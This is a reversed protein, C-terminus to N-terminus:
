NFRVYEFNVPQKNVGQHPAAIWNAFKGPEVVRGMLSQVYARDQEDPLWEGHQHTWDSESLVAGDPSVHHGAFSGIRRNFGKHPLKFRFPVGYKEPIRNWRDIGLQVDAVWDDRLRENLATLGAVHKTVIREGLVEMVPYEAGELRHDDDIRTENYRGKLGNTYFSAANSSIESGYLDSTVSYHFNLYRQLTPLDIVGMARLKAPDDTGLKKMEECSRQVIRGIGSEGVFM